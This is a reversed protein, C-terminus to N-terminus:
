NVKGHLRDYPTSILKAYEFSVVVDRNDDKHCQVRSMPADYVWGTFYQKIRVTGKARNVGMARGTIWM